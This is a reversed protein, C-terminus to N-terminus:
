GPTDDKVYFVLVVHKKNHYNRLRVLRGSQDTLQFDPAKDGVAITM